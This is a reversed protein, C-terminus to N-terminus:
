ARDGNSCQNIFDELDSVVQNAANDLVNVATITAASRNALHRAKIMQDRAKAMPALIANMTELAGAKLSFDGIALERGEAAVGYLTYFTRPLQLVYGKLAEDREEDSNFSDIEGDYNEICPKARFYQFALPESAVVEYSWTSKEPAPPLTVEVTPGFEPTGDYAIFNVSVKNERGPIGKHRVSARRGASLKHLSKMEGNMVVEYKGDMVATFRIVIMSGNTAVEMERVPEERLAAEIGDALEKDSMVTRIPIDAAGAASKIAISKPASAASLRLHAIEHDVIVLAEALNRAAVVIRGGGLAASLPFAFQMEIDDIPTQKGDPDVIWCSLTEEVEFDQVTAGNDLFTRKASAITNTVVTHRTCVIERTYIVFKPM